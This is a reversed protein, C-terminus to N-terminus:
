LMRQSQIQHIAYDKEIIISKEFPSHLHHNLKLFQCAQRPYWTGGDSTLIPHKDYEKLLNSLFREAVVVYIKREKSITISLIEKDKTPEIAVGCLWILESGVKLQTEAIIFKSIKIKRFLM